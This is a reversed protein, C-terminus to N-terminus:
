SRFRPGGGTCTWCGTAPRSWGGPPSWRTTLRASRPIRPTRVSFRDLRRSVGRSTSTASGSMSSSPARNPRRGGV